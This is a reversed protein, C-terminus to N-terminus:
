DGFLLAASIMIVSNFQKQDDRLDEGNEYQPTLNALGLSYGANILIPGAEFGVGIDIGFDIANFPQEDEEIDEQSVEGFAPTYDIEGEYDTSEPLGETEVTYEFDNKGGIGAAIYPGLFIQFNEIKYAIHLPIQLYNLTTRDYGDGELSQGDALGEELDVAYGKQSFSLGTQLAINDTFGFEVMAGIEFGLKMQTEPEFDSDAYDTRINALNLGVKPGIKIQAQTNLALLAIFVISLMFALKKM